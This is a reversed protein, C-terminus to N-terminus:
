EVSNMVSEWCKMWYQWTKSNMQSLFIGSLKVEGLMSYQIM